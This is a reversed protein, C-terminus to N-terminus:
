GGTDSIAIDGQTHPEDKMPPRVGPNTGSYRAMTVRHPSLGVHAPTRTGGLYIGLPPADETTGPRVHLVSPSSAREM